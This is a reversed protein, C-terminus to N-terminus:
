IPRITRINTNTGHANVDKVTIGAMAIEFPFSSSWVQAEAALSFIKCAFLSFFGGVEDSRRNWGMGKREADSLIRNPIWVNM